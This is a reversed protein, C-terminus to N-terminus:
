GATIGRDVNLCAGHFPKGRPGALMLILDTLDEPEASGRLPSYRALLQFDIGEPVSPTATMATNIGGPAIANIRVPAHMYEMALSKTLNVLAAKSAAYHTLFAHGLFASASAVNVIAGSSETLHPLAAQCLFFPGRVNVAFIRDWVDPTISAAHDFRFAGAVNCLADIRGFRAHAQSILSACSDADAIDTVIPVAEGGPGTVTAATAALGAEDIDALALRAGAAAFALATARGLGSAAGTVVVVKGDFEGTTM